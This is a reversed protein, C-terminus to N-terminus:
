LSAKGNSNPEQSFDRVIISSDGGDSVLRKGDSCASGLWLKYGTLAYMCKTQIKQQQKQQQQERAGASTEEEAEKAGSCDWVRLAGDQGGSIFMGDSPSAMTMVPGVHKPKIATETTETVDFPNEEDVRGTKSNINLTLRHIEGDGGGCLVSHGGDEEKNKMILVSRAAIESLMIGVFFQGDEMNFLAAGGDATACVGLKLEECLHMDLVSDTFDSQFMPKEPPFTVSRDTFGSIDYARVTGDYCSTWLLGNSDFKLSTVITNEIGPLSGLNILQGGGTGAMKKVNMWLVAGGERGSSAILDGHIAVAVVGGGDLKGYMKEMAQKRMSTGAANAKSTNSSEQEVQVIHAKEVSGIVEKEELNVLFVGGHAGGCVAIPYTEMHVRRVWDSDSVSVFTTPCRATRWNQDIIENQISDTRTKLEAALTTDSHYYTKPLFAQCDVDQPDCLPDENINSNFVLPQDDLSSFALCDEDDVACAPNLNKELQKEFDSVGSFPSSTAARDQEDETDDRPGYSLSTKAWIRPSPLGISVRNSVSSPLVFAAVGNIHSGPLLPVVGLVIGLSSVVM